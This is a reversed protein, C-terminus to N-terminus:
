FGAVHANVVVLSAATFCDSFHLLNSGPNRPVRFKDSLEPKPQSQDWETLRITTYKSVCITRSLRVIAGPHLRPGHHESSSLRVWALGGTVWGLLARSGAMLYWLPAWDHLPEWPTFMHCTLIAWHAILVSKSAVSTDDQAKLTLWFLIM